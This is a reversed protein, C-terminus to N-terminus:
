DQLRLVIHPPSGDLVVDVVVARCPASVEPQEALKRGPEVLDADSVLPRSGAPLPVILLRKEIGPPLERAERECIAEIADRAAERTGPATKAAAILELLRPVHAASGHRRLARVASFVVLSDRDRTAKELLALARPERRALLEGLALWRLAGDRSKYARLLLESARADPIARLASVFAFRQLLNPEAEAATLFAPAEDRALELLCAELDEFVARGNAERRGLSAGEVMAKLLAEAKGGRARYDSWAASLETSGLAELM